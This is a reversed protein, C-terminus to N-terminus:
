PAKAEVAGSAIADGQDLAADLAAARDKSQVASMLVAGAAMRGATDRPAPVPPQGDPSISGGSFFAALAALRAPNERRAKDAADFAARRNAESPNRIWQIAATLAADPTEGGSANERVVRTAWVVAEFRGLAQGLYQAAERDRGQARLQAFYAGPPVGSGARADDPWDLQEAIQAAETWKVKTWRAM